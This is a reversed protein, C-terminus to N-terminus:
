NSDLFTHIEAEESKEPHRWTITADERFGRRLNTPSERGAPLACLCERARALEPHRRPSTQHSVDGMRRGFTEWVCVDGLGTEAEAEAAPKRLCPTLTPSHSSAGGRGVGM